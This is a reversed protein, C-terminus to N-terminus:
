ELLWKQGYTSYACTERLTSLCCVADVTRSLVQKWTPVPAKPFAGVGFNPANQSWLSYSCNTHSRACVAWIVSKPGWLCTEKLGSIAYAWLFALTNSQFM